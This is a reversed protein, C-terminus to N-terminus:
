SRPKGNLWVVQRQGDALTFIMVSEHQLATLLDADSAINTKPLSAVTPPLAPANRAIPTTELAHRSSQLVAISAIALIVCAAGATRIRSRLRIRAAMQAPLSLGSRDDYLDNLLEDRHDPSNKNM